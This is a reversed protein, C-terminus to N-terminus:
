SISCSSCSVGVGLDGLVGLADDVAYLKTSAIMLLLLVHTHRKTMTYAIKNDDEHFQSLVM